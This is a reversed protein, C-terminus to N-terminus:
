RRHPFLPRPRAARGRPPRPPPLLAPSMSAPYADAAGPAPLWGRLRLIADGVPVVTPAGGAVALEGYQYYQVPDGGVAALRSVPDGLVGRGGLQRYLAALSPAPQLARAAVDRRLGAAALSQGLPAPYVSNHAPDYILEGGQFYQVLRGRDEIEETRPYGLTQLGGHTTFYGLFLGRIYHGAGYYYIWSSTGTGGALTDSPADSWLPAQVWRFDRLGFNLLNRIDDILNPTNLLVALLHKGDRNVAVVQCLGANDTDGPKVGDVGPYWYMVHNVNALWHARNHRTPPVYYSETAVIRRFTPDRLAYRAIIALDRASSYHGPADLGHPTVYHTNRMHLSRALANMMRVFRAETGAVHEALAIAADNGSNLLLGYLLQRVTVREGQRLGMTSEGITAANQSVTVLDSLHSHQLALVATTIKTTSAMPLREDPNKAYLVQNNNLDLLYAARAQIPPAPYALVTTRASLPLAPRATATPTPLATHTATSLPMVTPALPTATPAARPLLATLRLAHAPFPIGVDIGPITALVMAACTAVVM